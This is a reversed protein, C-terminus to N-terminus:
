HGVRCPFDGVDDLGCALQPSWLCGCCPLLRFLCAPRDRPVTGPAPAARSFCTAPGPRTLPRLATAFRRRGVAFGGRRGQRAGSRGGCDVAAVARGAVEGLCPQTFCCLCCVGCPSSPHLPHSHRSAHSPLGTPSTAARHTLTAPRRTLDRHHLPTPSGPCPTSHRDRPARPPRGTPSTAAHPTPPPPCSGTWVPVGKRFGASTGYRDAHRRWGWVRREARRRVDAGAHRQMPRRPCGDPLATLDPSVRSRGSGETPFPMWCSARTRIGPVPSRRTSGTEVLRSAYMIAVEAATREAAAVDHTIMLM